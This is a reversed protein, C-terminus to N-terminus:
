AEAADDRDVGWATRTARIRGVIEPADDPDVRAEAADLHDMADSLAGQEHAHLAAIWHAHVATQDDLPSTALLAAVAPGVAFDGRDLRRLLRVLRIRGLTEADAFPGAEARDFLPEAHDDWGVEAAKEAVAWAIEGAAAPEGPSLRALAHSAEAWARAVVADADADGAGDAWERAAIVLWSPHRRLAAQPDLASGDFADLASRASALVARRAAEDLGLLPLARLGLARVADSGPVAGIEALLGDQHARLAPLVASADAGPALSPALALVEARAEPTLGAM